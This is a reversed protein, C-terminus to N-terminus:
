NEPPGQGIHPFTCCKNVQLVRGGLRSGQVVQAEQRRRSREEHQWDEQDQGPRPAEQHSGALHEFREDARGM